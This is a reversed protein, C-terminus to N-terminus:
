LLNIFLRVLRPLYPLLASIQEPSSMARCSSSRSCGVWCCSSRRVAIIPKSNGRPRLFEAVVNWTVTLCGAVVFEISPEVRGGIPVGDVVRGDPNARHSIRVIFDSSDVHRPTAILFHDIEGVLVWFEIPRRCYFTDKRWWTASWKLVSKLITRGCPRVQPVFWPDWEWVLTCQAVSLCCVV